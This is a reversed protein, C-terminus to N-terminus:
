SKTYKPYFSEYDETVLKRCNLPLDKFQIKKGLSHGEGDIREPSDAHIGVGVYPNASMGVYMYYRQGRTNKLPRTFVVTYRDLLEPGSDYCAIFKPSNM